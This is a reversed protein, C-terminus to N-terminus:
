VYFSCIFILKMISSAVYNNQKILVLDSGSTRSTTLPRIVRSELGGCHGWATDTFSIKWSKPLQMKMWRRSMLTMDVDPTELLVTMLDSLDASSAPLTLILDILGLVKLCQTEFSLNVEEWSLNKVTPYSTYLLRKGSCPINAM